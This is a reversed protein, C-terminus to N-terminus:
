LLSFKQLTKVETLIAEALSNGEADYVDCRGLPHLKSWETGSCHIEEVEGLESDYQVEIFLRKVFVSRVHPTM